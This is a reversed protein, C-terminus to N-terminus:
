KRVTLGAISCLWGLEAPSSVNLKLMIKGRHAKVTKESIGLDAAIQKNRAGGLISRLVESERPTLADLRMQVAATRSQESRATRCKDLARGVAELLSAEDVPKTLFDIAGRKMAEIGVPLDGHATVFVVPMNNHQRNLHIQLDTGSLGPMRIDLVICGIGGYPERRLYDDASQFVESAYGSASLLRSLAKGVAPDDDIIFIRSESPSMTKPLVAM